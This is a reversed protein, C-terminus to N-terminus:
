HQSRRPFPKHGVAFVFTRIGEALHDTGQDTERSANTNRSCYEFFEITITTEHPQTRSSGGHFRRVAAPSTWHGEADGNVIISVKPMARPPTTVIFPATPTHESVM